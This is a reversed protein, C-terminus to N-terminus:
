LIIFIPLEYLISFFKDFGIKLIYNVYIYERATVKIFRASINPASIVRFMSFLPYNVDQKPPKM